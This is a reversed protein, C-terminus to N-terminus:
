AKWVFSDAEELMESFTPAAANARADRSFSIMITGLTITGVIAFLLPGRWPGKSQPDSMAVVFLRDPAPEFLEFRETKKEGHDQAQWERM